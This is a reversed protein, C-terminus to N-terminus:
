TTGKGFSGTVQALMASTGSALAEESIYSPAQEDPSTNTCVRGEAVSEFHGVPGTFTVARRGGVDLFSGQCIIWHRRGSRNSGFYLFKADSAWLGWEWQADKEAFFMHHCWEERVYRYARVTYRGEAEALLEFKGLQEFTHPLPLLLVAGEVPLNARKSLRLVVSKEAKGYVPAIKGDILESMWVQGAAPLIALGQHDDGMAVYAKPQTWHEVSAPAFHWFLDLQHVAEGLALDRVLCFQSKLNFVWRHHFVPRLTRVYGTHSGAFLDFTSGGEWIAVSVDPLSGWAFAGAPESQNLGDVMMTNHSATGRFLHRERGPAVYALTGPDVLRERGGVNMHISLADAHSHGATGPGQPGGDIIVRYPPNGASAMIYIGSSKLRQSATRPGRAVIEQFRSPSEKGLLWLTEERLTGAAAKLDGRGFLIAGTSFPDSLNEPRNRLHDFVRGGDSDGFLPPAGGQTLAILFDLMKELVRDFSSPITVSNRVALIRAHLFFDLAYVHYYLSREFHMGDPLVQRSAEGLIIEWGLRKWRRAASFQPYLTGLFFLAVGEGLLHTNPSFYTSLYREIHRGNLRQSQALERYFKEPIAPCGSLLHQVWNWSLSRFAVELSSAWNIGMPYPNHRRWDSWQDVVERAYRANGTLCYAKALTVLHQHRNLEWVIKHDGVEDFDLYHVKFGPREPAKKGHVPDLHWDIERGFDLGQFGLLDFRHRLIQNAQRLTQSTEEPFLETTMTSLESTEGADFFFRGPNQVAKPSKFSAQDRRVGLRYILIDLHKLLEQSSRVRLESWSMQALRSLSTRQKSM